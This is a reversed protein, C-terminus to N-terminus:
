NDDEEQDEINWGMFFCICWYYILLVIGFCLSDAIVSSVDGVSRAFPSFTLRRNM